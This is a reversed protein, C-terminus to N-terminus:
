DKVSSGPILGDGTVETLLAVERGRCADLSSSAAPLLLSGTAWETPCAQAHPPGPFAKLGPRLKALDGQECQGTSVIRGAGM